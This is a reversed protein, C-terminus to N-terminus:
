DEFSDFIINNYLVTNLNLRICHANNSNNEKQCYADDNFLVVVAAIRENIGTSKVSLSVVLIYHYMLLSSLLM